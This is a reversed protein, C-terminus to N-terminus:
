FDQKINITNSDGNVITGVKANDKITVNVKNKPNDITKKPSTLLKPDNMKSSPKTSDILETKGVDTSKQKIPIFDKLTYGTVLVIASIFAWARKKLIQLFTNTVAPMREILEFLQTKILKFEENLEKEGIIAKSKKTLYQTYKSSLAAVEKKLGIESKTLQLMKNFVKVLEGKSVAEKLQDPISM